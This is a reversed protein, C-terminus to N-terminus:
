DEEPVPPTWLEEPDPTPFVGRPDPTWFTKQILNFSRSKFEVNRIKSAAVALDARAIVARWNAISKKWKAKREELDADKKLDAADDDPM